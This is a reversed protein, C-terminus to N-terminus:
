GDIDINEFEFGKKCDKSHISNNQNHSLWWIHYGHPKKTKTVFTNRKCIELITLENYQNEDTIGINNLFKQFIPKAVDYSNIIESVPKSIIDHVYDSDIDLVQLYLDNNQTDKIRTKGLTSAVNTFKSHKEADNITDNNWYGPNDYIDSWAISPIHNEDLPVLKFGIEYLSLLDSYSISEFNNCSDNNISPSSQPPSSSSLL